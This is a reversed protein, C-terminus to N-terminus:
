QQGRTAVYKLQDAHKAVFDKMESDPIQRLYLNSRLTDDEERCTSLVLYKDTAKIKINPNKTRASEYINKLQTTFDKDDTFSTRYFATDEPVIVLGIAEYYYKREPTEIVVYPHQDFYEQTDYYNVDKFMRHDPVKSGRAHGFLWTLRDSFDKKNDTDMFVTGLLPKYGGDFTKDLYTANDGTQM